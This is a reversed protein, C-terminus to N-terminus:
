IGSYRFVVPVRSPLPQSEGGPAQKQIDENRNLHKRAQGKLHSTSDRGTIMIEGGTCLAPIM